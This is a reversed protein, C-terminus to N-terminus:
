KGARPNADQKKWFEKSDFPKDSSSPSTACGFFGCSADASSKPLNPRFDGALHRQLDAKIDAGKKDTCYDPDANIRARITNFTSDYSGQIKALQDGAAGQQAEYALYSARLKDADFYFGCRKARASTWAVSIPRAMPHENSIGGAPADAPTAGTTLGSAGGGCGAHLATAAVLLACALGRAFRHM